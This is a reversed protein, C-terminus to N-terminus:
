LIHLLLYLISNNAPVPPYILIVAWEFILHQACLTDGSNHKVRPKLLYYPINNKGPEQISLMYQPNRAFSELDNRSGGATVGPIWEGRILEM